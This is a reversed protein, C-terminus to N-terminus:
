FQVLEISELSLDSAIVILQCGNDLAPYVFRNSGISFSLELCMKKADGYCFNIITSARKTLYNCQNRSGVRDLPPLCILCDALQTPSRRNLGQCGVEALRM